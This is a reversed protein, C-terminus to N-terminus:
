KQMRYSADVAVCFATLLVMLRSGRTMRLVLTLSPSLLSSVSLLNPCTLQSFEADHHPNPPPNHPPITPHSPHHSSFFPFFPAHPSTPHIPYIETSHLINPRKPEISGGPPFSSSPSRPLLCSLSPRSSPARSSPWNERHFISMDLCMPKEPAYPLGCVVSYGPLSNYSTPFPPFAGQSKMPYLHTSM